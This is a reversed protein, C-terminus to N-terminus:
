NFEQNNEALKLYIATNSVKNKKTTQEFKTM